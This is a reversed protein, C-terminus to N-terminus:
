KEKGADRSGDEYGDNYRAQGYGTVTSMVLHANDFSVGFERLQKVINERYEDPSM